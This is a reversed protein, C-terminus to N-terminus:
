ATRLSTESSGLTASCWSAFRMLEHPIAKLGNPKTQTAFASVPLDVSYSPLPTGCCSTTVIGGLAPAVWPLGVPMTKLPPLVNRAVWAALENARNM